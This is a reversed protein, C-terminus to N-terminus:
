RDRIASLRPRQWLGFLLHSRIPAKVEVRTGSEPASKVTLTASISEARKRMGLIGFGTYHSDAIFGQGDDEVSLCISEHTRQLRIRIAGPAAHRISNAIAEQGILYLTDKIRPPVIRSGDAGYAEVTVNGNKVMREACERLAPLLGTPGLSKPRLNAISRRAEGHSTRAMSIALDVQSELLEAGHPLSNRIAQLQFGIGAFSQALTDHIENALREREDAVERLRWHKALLYLHNFIFILTLGALSALILTSPRWWPPGAVVEVDQASRVLIVFPDAGKNFRADVVSVGRLRLRSEQALRRLLSRSRGPPLIARFSQAGADLDMTIADDNGVSVTRLYGEVQVFRSDYQGEAVQNATLVVPSVPVSERLLRLGAKRIVPSFKEIDVEGTVEVEDGIKLTTASDAQIEVGGTSDQVYVAPRILVVSGRVSALPSGFPPLYLLSRITHVPASPARDGAPQTRGHRATAQPPARRFTAAPPPITPATAGAATAAVSDVPAVRVNRWIGGTGNSRLAIAGSRFCDPDNLPATNIEGMGEASAYATIQCGDVKLKVHYWRFPRVPDPLIVRAAEHYAFDFAGLVLSNDVTRVGLFYGKFSNEGVEAESVRALVGVSGEGLLQVDAEVIYNKWNRSGTLLKAGRDNADNRMAGEVVEWAGGLATWGDEEDPTFRAHYPLGYGPSNIYLHRGGIIGATLISLAVASIILKRRSIRKM